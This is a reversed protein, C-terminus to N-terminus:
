SSAPSRRRWHRSRGTSGRRRYQPDNDYQARFRTRGAAYDLTKVITAKWSGIGITFEEFYCSSGSGARDSRFGHTSRSSLYVRGTPVIEAKEEALSSKQEAALTTDTMTVEGNKAPCTTPAGM